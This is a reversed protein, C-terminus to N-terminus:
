PAVPDQRIFVTGRYADRDSWTDGRLRLTCGSIQTPDFPEPM